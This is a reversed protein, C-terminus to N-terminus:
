TCWPLAVANALLFVFKVLKPMASFCIAVAVMDSDRRVSLGEFFVGRVTKVTVVYFFQLSRGYIMPLIHRM